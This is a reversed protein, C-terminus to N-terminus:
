VHARGIQDYPGLDEFTAPLSISVLREDGMFTGLGAFGTVPLGDITEPIVLDRVSDDCDM